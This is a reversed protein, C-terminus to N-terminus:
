LDVAGGDQQLVYAYYQRNKAIINGPAVHGPPRDHGLGDGERVTWDHAYQMRFRLRNSPRHISKAVTTWFTQPHM